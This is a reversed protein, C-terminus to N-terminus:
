RKLSDVAVVSGPRFIATSEEVASAVIADPEPEFHDKLAEIVTDKTYTYSSLKAAVSMHQVFDLPVTGGYPACAYGNGVQIVLIAKLKM